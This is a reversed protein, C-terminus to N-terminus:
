RAITVARLDVISVKGRQRLFIYRAKKEVFRDKFKEGNRLHVFVPTGSMFSTHCRGIGKAM